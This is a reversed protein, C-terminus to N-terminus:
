LKRIDINISMLTEPFLIPLFVLVEWSVKFITLGEGRLAIHLSIWDLIQWGEGMINLKKHSKRAKPIAAQLCGQLLVILIKDLLLM